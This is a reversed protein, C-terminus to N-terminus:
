HTSNAESPNLYRSYWVVSPVQMCSPRGPTRHRMVGQIRANANSELQVSSLMHSMVDLVLGEETM